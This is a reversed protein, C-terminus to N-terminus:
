SPSPQIFSGFQSALIIYIFIVALILSQVAYGMSEALNEADGGFSIGYGM